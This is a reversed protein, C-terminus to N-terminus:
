IILLRFLENVQHDHFHDDYGNEQILVDTDYKQAVEAM